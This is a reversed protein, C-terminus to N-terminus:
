FPLDGYEERSPPEGFDSFGGGNYSPSVQAYAQQSQQQNAQVQQAPQQQVQAQPQQQNATGANQPKTGDKKDGTFYVNEAIVETVWRKNGNKDDYSRTQLTGDLAILQGKIFYKCVFEAAQRWVVIDIFDVQRQEGSKAYNRDVAIRFSTVSIGNPTTKLEPDYVLRGMLIIKNLM